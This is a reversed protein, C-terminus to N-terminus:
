VTKVSPYSLHGLSSSVYRVCIRNKSPVSVYQLKTYTFWFVNCSCCLLKILVTLFLLYVTELLTQRLLQM